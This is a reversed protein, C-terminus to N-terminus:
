ARSRTPEADAPRVTAALRAVRDKIETVARQFAAPGGLRVPDPVSWHLRATGRAALEEHAADCVAVVLDDPRLVEDVHHTRAGSLSLGHRRGAAVAAPHVRSAPRTGASAAAVASARRWAAHALQSRASNHSCVFVVRPAVVPPGAVPAVAALLGVALRVYTRRGDGESRQRAVLGVEELQKLHHALLNSPIGLRGALEGPALDGLRLEEVVRLRLPDGLAGHLRARHEVDGAVQM